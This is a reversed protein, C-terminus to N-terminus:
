YRFWPDGLDAPAGFHACSKSRFFDWASSRRIECLNGDYELLVFQDHEDHWPTVLQMMLGVAMSALVGNPWVVQPKGGAEGYRAAEAALLDPRLVNMCHLCVEGPMSLGVQGTILFRSGVAHVDMGLDIYPTLSRRAARELEDRAAFSDVCGFIVDCDRLAHAAEQWRKSIPVITARPNVGRIVRAAIRVKLESNRVDAETGGVLRNLNSDEIRDPDVIVFHGVGVHALQQVIHSGGGGLGVIGVNLAALTKDSKHGLFNQRKTRAKM